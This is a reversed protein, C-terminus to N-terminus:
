IVLSGYYYEIMTVTANHTFHAIVGYLITEHKNRLRALFLGFPFIWILSLLSFHVLAFLFSSGWVAANAGSISKLNNFLFGRFALEEFIAPFVAVIILSYILPFSTSEFYYSYDLWFEGPFLLANLNDMLFGVFFGSCIFAPVIWFIPKLSIKKFVLKWVGPQLLSFIVDLLAFAVTIVVISILSDEIVMNIILAVVILASYTVLLKMNDDFKQESRIRAKFLALNKAGCNGCFKYALTQEAQCQHCYIKEVEEM